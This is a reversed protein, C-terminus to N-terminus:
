SQAAQARVFDKGIEGELRHGVKYRVHGVRMDPDGVTNPAELLLSRQGIHVLIYKRSSTHDPIKWTYPGIKRIPVLTWDNNSFNQTNFM